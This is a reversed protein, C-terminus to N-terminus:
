FDFEDDEDDGEPEAGTARGSASGASATSSSAKKAPKGGGLSSGGLSSSLSFGAGDDDDDDFSSAGGMMRALMAGSLKTKKRRSSGGLAFSGSTAGASGPPPTSASLTPSPASSPRANKKGKPTPRYGLSGGGMIGGGFASMGGLGGDDDVDDDDDFDDDFDTRLAATFRPRTSAAGAKKGAGAASPAATAPTSGRGATDSDGSGAAAAPAAAAAAAAAAPAAAAPETAAGDSAAAAVTAAGESGSSDGDDDAAIESLIGKHMGRKLIFGKSADGSLGAFSFTESASGPSDVPKTFTSGAKRSPSPPKFVAAKESDGSPLFSFDEFTLTRSAASGASEVARVRKIGLGAPLAPSHPSAVASADEEGRLLRLLLQEVKGFAAAGASAPLMLSAMHEAVVSVALRCNDVLWTMYEYLREWTEVRKNGSGDAEGIQDMSLQTHVIPATLRPCVHIFNGDLLPQRSLVAELTFVLQDREFSELGHYNGALAVKIVAEQQSKSMRLQSGPFSFPSGDDLMDEVTACITSVVVHMQAATLVAFQEDAEEEERAGADAAEAEASAAAAAAAATQPTPPRDTSVSDDAAPAAAPAAAAAAAAAAAREAEAKAFAEAKAEAEAEAAAKAAQRDRMVSLLSTSSLTKAADDGGAAATAATAAPALASSSAAAAAPPPAMPQLELKKGFLAAEEVTEDRSLLTGDASLNYRSEALGLRADIIMCVDDVTDDRRVPVHVIKGAFALEVSHMTPIRAEKGRATRRVDM